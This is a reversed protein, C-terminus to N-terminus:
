PLIRIHFHDNHNPWHQLAAKGRAAQDATLNGEKVLEDLGWGVAAHKSQDVLIYEKGAIHHFDQVQRLVGAVIMANAITDFGQGGSAFSVDADIGHQHSVHPPFYGGGPKSIGGVSMTRKSTFYADYDKGMGVLVAIMKQTGYCGPECRPTIGPGQPLRVNVRQDSGPADIVPTPNPLVVREGESRAIPSGGVWDGIEAKANNYFNRIRGPESPAYAPPPTPVPGRQPRIEAPRPVTGEIKIKKPQSMPLPERPGKPGDARVANDGGLLAAAESAGASGLKGLFDRDGQTVGGDFFRAVM